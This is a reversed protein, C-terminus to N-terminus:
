QAYRSADHIYGTSKHLKHFSVQTYPFCKLIGRAGTVKKHTPLNAVGHQTVHLHKALRPVEGRAAILGVDADHESILRHHAIMHHTSTAHEDGCCPTHMIHPVTNRHQINPSYASCGKTRKTYTHYYLNPLPATVSTPKMTGRDRIGKEGHGGERQGEGTV